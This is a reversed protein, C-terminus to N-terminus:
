VAQRGPKCCARVFSVLKLLSTCTQVFTCGLGRSACWTLRTLPTPFIPYKAHRSCRSSADDMEFNVDKRLVDFNTLVIDAAALDAATVVMGAAVHFHQIHLCPVVVRCVHRDCTVEDVLCMALPQTCESPNLLVQSSSCVICSLQLSRAGQASSLLSSKQGHYTVVKLTGAEVHRQIEDFWQKQIAEPCVILTAKSVGKVEQTCLDRMCRACLATDPVKGGRIGICSAHMWAACGDCEVWLGQYNEVSADDANSAHTGCPTCRVCETKPLTAVRSKLSKPVMPTPAQHTLICALVEITQV